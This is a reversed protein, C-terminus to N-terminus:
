DKRKKIDILEKKIKKLAYILAHNLNIMKQQDNEDNFGIEQPVTDM